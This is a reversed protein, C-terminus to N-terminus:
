GQKVPTCGHDSKESFWTADSYHVSFPGLWFQLSVFRMMCSVIPGFAFYSPNFEVGVSRLRGPLMWEKSRRTM